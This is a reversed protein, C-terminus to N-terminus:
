NTNANYRDGERIVLRTSITRANDLLGRISSRSWGVTSEFDVTHVIAGSGADQRVFIRYRIDDDNRSSFEVSEIHTIGEPDGSAFLPMPLAIKSKYGKALDYEFTANCDVSAPEFMQAAAATLVSVPKFSRPPLSLPNAVKNLLMWVGVRINDSGPTVSLNGVARHNIGAIVFKSGFVAVTTRADGASVPDHVHTATQEMIACIAPRRDLPVAFDARFEFRTCGYNPLNLKMNLNGPPNAVPVM